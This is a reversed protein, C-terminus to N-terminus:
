TKLTPGSGSIGAMTCLFAAHAHRMAKAAANWQERTYRQASGCMSMFADEAYVKAAHASYIMENTPRM